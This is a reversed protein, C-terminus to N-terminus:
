VASTSILAGQPEVPVGRALIPEYCWPQILVVTQPEVPEGHASDTIQVPRPLKFGMFAGYFQALPSGSGVLRMFWGSM